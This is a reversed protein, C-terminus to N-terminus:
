EHNDTKLKSQYENNIKVASQGSMEEWRKLIVDCYLPDLEILAAKRKTKEAAILTTGSGGFPDLILDGARSCDLIADAVMAVPKVTPHLKLENMRNGGFSNVGPYQWINTRYRGNQGLEVNNIHKGTGHKFVFVMEHQSRYLSGMGGNDKAWICLNKLELKSKRAATLIEEIHRWDMCSFIIAGDRCHQSMHYHARTLFITFEDKSMEGSAMKFERHQVSGSNGVHGDIKVNYPADTFVMAAKQNNLLSAYSEEELADGCYLLHDGLKYLDGLQVRANDEDIPPIENLLDTDAHIDLNLIADIEPVEFCTLSLDIEPMLIQLEEFEIKLAAMDWKVDEHIRDYAIRLVKIQAEDLHSIKVVPLSDYHLANAAHFLFDGIVITQEEDIVLPIIFGFEQLFAKAKDAQKPSPKRLQRQYPALNQIAIYEIKLQNHKNNM